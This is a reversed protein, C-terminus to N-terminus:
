SAKNREYVSFQSSTVKQLKLVLVYPIVDKYGHRTRLWDYNERLEKLSSCNALKIEEDTLEDFKKMQISNVKVFFRAYQRPMISASNWKGDSYPSDERYFVNNNTLKYQEKVWYQNGISYSSTFDSLGIDNKGKRCRSCIFGNQTFEFSHKHLRQWDCYDDDPQKKLPMLFVIENNNMLANVAARNLPIASKNM